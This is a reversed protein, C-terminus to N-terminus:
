RAEAVHGLLGEPRVYLIVVVILLAFADRFPLAGSPLTADLGVEIGALVFGGLAAGTLSGLGGIVSAIFAKLVPVFGMTPEVTGRRALIFIAAVGALTGSIAFAQAIVRNAPIGMLRTVQFDQSAALMGLGQISRRLFLTLVALAGFCTIATIVQLWGITFPGVHIAENFLNPLPVGKQRPSILALLLNQIIVSVAFSSFLLTLFSAGRLPRFALREMLVATVAAAAIASPVQVAFPLGHTQELYITYAAVTVLEGHAFNVLGLISFVMALGLALLAYTSGLSLANILQQVAEQGTTALIM